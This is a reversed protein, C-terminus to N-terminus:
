EYYKLKYIFIDKNMKIHNTLILHGYINRKGLSQELKKYNKESIDRNSTLLRFRDYNKTRFIQGMIEVDPSMSTKHYEVTKM